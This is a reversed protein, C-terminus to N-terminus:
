RFRFNMLLLIPVSDPSYFIGLALTGCYSGDTSYIKSGGEKEGSVVKLSHFTRCHFLFILICEGSKKQNLWSHISKKGTIDYLVFYDGDARGDVSKFAEPLGKRNQQLTGIYTMNYEVRLTDVLDFSSYLSFPFALELVLCFFLGSKMLRAVVFSTRGSGSGSGVQWTM